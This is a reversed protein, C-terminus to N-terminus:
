SIGFQFFSITDPDSALRFESFTVVNMLAEENVPENVPERNPV